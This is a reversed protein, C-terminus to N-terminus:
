SSPCAAAPAAAGTAERLDFFLMAGATKGSQAHGIADALNPLYDRAQEVGARPDSFLPKATAILSILERGPKGTLTYTTLMPPCGLVFHNRLPRLNLRDRGSPFLHLVEGESDFYDVYLYGDFAPARVDVTLRDGIHLEKGPLSLAPADKGSGGTLPNLM